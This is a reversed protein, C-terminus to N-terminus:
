RTGEWNRGATVIHNGRPPHISWGWLPSAWSGSLAFSFLVNINKWVMIRILFTYHSQPWWWAHQKFHVMRLNAQSSVLLSSCTLATHHSFCKPSSRAAQSAANSNEKISFWFSKNVEMFLPIRISIVSQLLFRTSSSFPVYYPSTSCRPTRQFWEASFFAEVELLSSSWISSSIDCTTTM